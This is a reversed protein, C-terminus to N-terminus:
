HKNQCLAKNFSKPINIPFFHVYKSIYETQVLTSIM